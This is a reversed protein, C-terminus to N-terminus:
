ARGRMGFLMVAPILLFIVWQPMVWLTGLITAGYYLFLGAYGLLVGVLLVGLGRNEHRVMWALSLTFLTLNVTVAHWLVASIARLDAPLNSSQIPLHIDPGGALVHVGTTLGMLVAALIMSRKM